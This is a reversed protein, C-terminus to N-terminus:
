RVVKVKGPADTVFEGVATAPVDAALLGDLLEDAKGSAVAFLLGGSTQADCLILREIESLGADYTVDVEVSKANRRSGGPVFSREALELTGDLVPVSSWRVNAGVTGEGLMERLHGLFGFGTIDTCAHVGVARAVDAASHNLAAMSDAAGQEYDAGAKGARVATSIIGTGLAKTVVLRDGAKAGVNRWIKEPHVFGTVCLGYKPEKDEVTHGGVIDIGAEKAKDAGGRLIVGLVSLPTEASNKPFGVVNLALVPRGGMAYVDSLSNAAAIAGFLYPDDVIPTFFDVTQIIALEDNVRYVAADDATKTGVLVNPDTIEPM